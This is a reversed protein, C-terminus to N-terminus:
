NPNAARCIRALVVPVEHYITYNNHPDSWVVLVVEGKDATSVSVQM